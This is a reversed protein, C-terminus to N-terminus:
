RVTGVHLLVHGTCVMANSWLFGSTKLVGKIPPCLVKSTKHWVQQKNMDAFEKKMAEWWKAHSTANPHNWAKTFTKTEEPVPKTDTTVMAFNILFYLKKQKVIKNANDNYLAQLRKMAWVVKANIITQLTIKVQHDIDEHFFNNNNEFDKKISGSDSDSVVNLKSNNSAVPVTELEEEKDTGEYSM